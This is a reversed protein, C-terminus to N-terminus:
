MSFVMKSFASRPHILSRCDNILKHLCTNWKTGVMLAALNDKHKEAKEKLDTLDLSGDQLSKVPVVKLGAM